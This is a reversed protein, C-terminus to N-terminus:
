LTHDLALDVGLQLLGTEVERPEAVELLIVDDM